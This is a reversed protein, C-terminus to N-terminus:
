QRAVDHSHDAVAPWAEEGPPTRLSSLISVALIIAIVALSLGEPVDITTSLLMKVGILGLIMAMGQQLHAFRAQLSSLLFYLARLGLIALVNSTFVVFEDQSVGLVAPISDVAFVVDTTEIL